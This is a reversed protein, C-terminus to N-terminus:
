DQKQLWVVVDAVKDAVVQVRATAPLWGAATVVVEYSGPPLLRLGELRRGLPPETSTMQMEGDTWTFQDLEIAGVKVDGEFDDDIRESAARDRLTLAVRGLRPLVVRAVGSGDAPVEADVEVEGGDFRSPMGTARIRVKGVPALLECRGPAAATQEARVSLAQDTSWASCEFEEVPKGDDWNLEVRFPARPVARFQLDCRQRGGAPATLEAGVAYAGGSSTIRVRSGPPVVAHALHGSQQALVKDSGALWVTATAQAPLLEVGDPDLWRLELLAADAVLRVSTDTAAFESEPGWIGGELLSVETLQVRWANALPRAYHFRGDHDTVAAIGRGGECRLSLKCNALPTGDRLEVRGTVVHGTGLVITGLRTAVFREVQAEATAAVGRAHEAKVVVKGADIGGLVVLFTGDEDAHALGWMEGNEKPDHVTVVAPVPRGEADVVRGSVTPYPGLGPVELTLELPQDPRAEAPFQGFHPFAHYGDAHVHVFFGGRRDLAPRDRWYGLDLEFTGDAISHVLLIRPEFEGHRLAIRAGSIPLGREDHVRGRLLWPARAAPPPPPLPTREAAPPPASRLDAPTKAGAAAVAPTPAGPTGGTDPVGRDKAGSWLPLAIAFLVAVGLAGGLLGRPRSLWSAGLRRVASGLVRARLSAAMATPAEFAVGGTGLAVPLRRRLSGM